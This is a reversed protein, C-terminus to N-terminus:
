IKKLYTSNMWGKYQPVYADRDKVKGTAKQKSVMIVYWWIQDNEDRKEAFAFGKDGKSYTQFINGKSNDPYYYGSTDISPTIRLMHPTNNVEFLIPEEFYQKPTQTEFHYENHEVIWYHISDKETACQYTIDHEVIAACCGQDHITLESITGNNFTIDILDIHDTFQIKFSTALQLSIQVMMTEGGSWGDFILDRDGDSDLDIFHFYEKYKRPWDDQESYQPYMRKVREMLSYKESLKINEYKALDFRDYKESILNITKVPVSENEVPKDESTTGCSLILGLIAILILTNKIM